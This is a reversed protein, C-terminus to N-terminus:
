FVQILIKATMALLAHSFEMGKISKLYQQQRSTFPGSETYSTNILISIHLLIVVM